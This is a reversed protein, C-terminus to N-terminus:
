EKDEIMSLEPVLRWVTHEEDALSGSFKAYMADAKEQGVNEIVFERFTQEPDAMDAYDKFPSVIAEQSKGGIRSMWAWYLKGDAWNHEKAMQSYETKMAEFAPYKSPMIQWSTVGFYAFPGAEDSWHSNEMDVASLYHEYGEAFQDVNANWHGDFGKEMSETVYADEDAWDFCCYRFTVTKGINDGLVPTFTQWARSDAKEKRFAMHDAVADMFQSFMGTKVTMVWVSALNPPQEEEAEQAAAVAPFVITVLFLSCILKITFRKMNAGKSLKALFDAVLFKFKM